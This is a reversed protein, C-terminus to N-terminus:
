ILQFDHLVYWCVFIVRRKIHKIHEMINAFSYLKKVIACEDMCQRNYIYINLRNRFISILAEFKPSAFVTEINQYTQLM